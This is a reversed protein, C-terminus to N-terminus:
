APLIVNDSDATRRESNVVRLIGTRLDRVNFNVLLGAPIGSHRLYSKLKAREAEIASSPISRVLVVVTSEVIFDLLDDDSEVSVGRFHVLLPVAEEFFLERMRMERALCSRYVDASLGPGLERHVELCAGSLFHPLEALDLNM